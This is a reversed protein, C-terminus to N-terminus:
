KIMTVTHSYYSAYPTFTYTPLTRLHPQNYNLQNCYKCCLECRLVDTYALVQIGLVNTTNTIKISNGNIRIELNDYIQRDDKSFLVYQTKSTTLSLKNDMYWQSLMELGSNITNFLTNMDDSSIGLQITM